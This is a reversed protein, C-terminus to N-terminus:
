RAAAEILGEIAALNKGLDADLHHRGLLYAPSNWNVRVQGQADQWALVKLPLDIGISPAAQMLPTGVKPNGFILVQMPALTLGAAKAEAAHDIRAFVKVGKAQLATELRDITVGVSHVSLREVLGDAAQTSLSTLSLMLIGLLHKM